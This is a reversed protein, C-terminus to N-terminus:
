RHKQAKPGSRHKFRDVNPRRPLTNFHGSRALQAEEKRPDRKLENIDFERVDPSNILELMDILFHRTYPRDRDIAFHEMPVWRLPQFTFSHHDFRICLFTTTHNDKLQVYAGRWTFTSYFNEPLLKGDNSLNMSTKIKQEQVMRHINQLRDRQAKSFFPYCRKEVAILTHHRFRSSFVAPNSLIYRVLCHIREATHPDNLYYENKSLAIVFEAATQRAEFFNANHYEIRKEDDNIKTSHTRLLYEDKLIPLPFPKIGLYDMLELTDFLDNDEPLKAFLTYPQKFTISRFIAMFWTYKIPDNLVYEGNENQPSLFNDKNAVLTSLYPILDLQQQTLQVSKDSTGFRFVYTVENSSEKVVYDEM